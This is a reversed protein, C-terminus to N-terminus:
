RRECNQLFIWNEGGLRAKPFNQKGLNAHDLECWTIRVSKLVFVTKKLRQNGTEAEISATLIV